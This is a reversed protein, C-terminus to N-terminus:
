NLSGNPLIIPYIYYSPSWTKQLILSETRILPQRAYFLFFSLFLCILPITITINHYITPFLMWRHHHTIHILTPSPECGSFILDHNLLNVVNSGVNRIEEIGRGERCMFAMNEKVHMRDSWRGAKKDKSFAAHGHFM